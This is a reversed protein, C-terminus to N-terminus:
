AGRVAAITARVKAPDTLVQRYERELGVSGMAIHPNRFRMASDAQMAASFHMERVGTARQVEAITTSNLRGCAMVIIRDGARVVLSRLLDLSDRAAPALGSTLVRDVGCDILAELAAHADATMDFARHCTVAMPRARAVLARMRMVDIAGEATLCGVVIGAAGAERLADVDALMAAFEGDSYLFDGGRPRVIVFFPIAARVLTERVTGISPTIGGEALSACLEARDAGGAQAALVGELGEVCIEILPVRSM